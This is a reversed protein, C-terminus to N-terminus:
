RRLFFGLAIGVCLLAFAVLNATDLPLIVYSLMAVVVLFLAIQIFYLSRKAIDTIEKREKELDSAPATPPRFPKLSNIVEKFTSSVIANQSSQTDRPQVDAAPPPTSSNMPLCKVGSPGVGIIKDGPKCIKLVEDPTPERGGEPLTAAYTNSGKPVCIGKPQGQPMPPGLDTVLDSTAPCISVKDFCKNKARDLMKSGTCIRDVGTTERGDPNRYTCKKEEGSWTWEAPCVPDTGEGVLCQNGMPTPTSGAPCKAETYGEFRERTRLFSLAVVVALLGYQIYSTNKM